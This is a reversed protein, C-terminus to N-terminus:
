RRVVKPWVWQGIKLLRALLPAVLTGLDPSVYTGSNLLTAPPSMYKSVPFSNRPPLIWPNGFNGSDMLQWFRGIALIALIAAIGVMSFCYCAPESRRM